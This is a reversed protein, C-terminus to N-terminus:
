VVSKRDANIASISEISRIGEYREGADQFLMQLEKSKALLDHKRRLELETLQDLLLYNNFNLSAISSRGAKTLTIRGEKTLSRMKLYINPYYATGYSEKIRSTLERISISRGTEKWLTDLIRFTTEDMPVVPRWRYEM